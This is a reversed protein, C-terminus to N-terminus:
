DDLTRSLFSAMFIHHVTPFNSGRTIKSSPIPGQLEGLVVNHLLVFDSTDDSGATAICIDLTSDPAQVVAFAQVKVGESVIGSTYGFDLKTTTGNIVMILYLYSDESLAFVGPDGQADRFIEFREGAPIPNAAVYNTILESDQKITVM